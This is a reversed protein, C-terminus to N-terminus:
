SSDVGARQSGSASAELIAPTKWKSGAQSYVKLNKEHTIGPAQLWGHVRTAEAGAPPTLNIERRVILLM